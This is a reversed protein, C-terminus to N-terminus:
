AQKQTDASKASAARMERGAAMLQALAFFLMMNMPTMAELPASEMMGTMLAAVVAMCLASGGRVRAAGRAFFVRLASPVITLLFLALLGFALVGYDAAFQLYANHISSHGASEHVTGETVLWQSRGFGNGILMYKPENKWNKFVNKWINTRYSFTADIAARAQMPEAEGDTEEQAFASPVFMEAEPIPKGAYHALAADTVLTCLAYGGVLVAGACALAAAHRLATRGIRLRDGLESWVGVAFAALMAYRATRSQTLVVVLAMVAAAALYYLASPVSKSRSLGLVCFMVCSLAFMGTTNYHTAHQLQGKVVGFYVTDSYSFFTRGTWACYLLAIGVALSILAIGFCAIDMQRERHATGAQRVSGYLVFFCITYNLWPEMTSVETGFRFAFTLLLWLSVLVLPWTDLCRGNKKGVLFLALMAGAWPRLVYQELPALLYRVAMFLDTNFVGNFLFMIALFLGESSIAALLCRRLWADLADAREFLKKM